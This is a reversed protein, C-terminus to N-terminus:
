FNEWKVADDPKRELERLLQRVRMDAVPHIFNPAIEALPVLVFARETLRPHPIILEPTNVTQNGYFLIDIDIPRPSNPPGPERGIATEIGKILTLLEMPTLPTTAECVLNLFRPQNTNGVPATDYVPSVRALWMKQSLMFLAQRLNLWRDGINSGLGLYIKVPKLEKEPSNTNQM